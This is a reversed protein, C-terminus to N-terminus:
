NLRFEITRENSRRSVGFARARAGPFATHTPRRADRRASPTERIADHRARSDDDLSSHDM